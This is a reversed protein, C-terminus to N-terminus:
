IHLSVTKLHVSRTSIVCAVFDTKFLTCVESGPVFYIVM